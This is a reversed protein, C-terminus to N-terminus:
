PKKIIGVEAPRLVRNNLSFGVKIVQGVTGPEKSIDPYEMLANMREPDFADGPEECFKTVGNSQFAKLLGDNTLQIGEHLNSLPVNTKLEEADVSELARYLNDSVELLSKAFSKIAYNRASDVDKRAINRTNEQEALSRLLQDKLVKIQVQLEEEKNPEEETPTEGEEAATTSAAEAEEEKKKEDSFWRYQQRSEALTRISPNSPSVAGVVHISRTVTHSTQTWAGSLLLSSSPRAVARLGSIM